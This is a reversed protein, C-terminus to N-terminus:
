KFSFFKICGLIVRGLILWWHYLLLMFSGLYTPPIALNFNHICLLLGVFVTVITGRGEISTVLYFGLDSCGLLSLM